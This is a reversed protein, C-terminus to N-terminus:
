LVRPVANNGTRLARPGRWRILGTKPRHSPNVAPARGDMERRFVPPIVSILEFNIAAPKMVATTTSQCHCRRRMAATAAQAQAKSRSADHLRQRDRRERKDPRVRNFFDFPLFVPTEGWLPEFQHLRTDLAGAGAHLRRGIRAEDIAPKLPSGRAGIGSSTSPLEPAAPSHRNHLSPLQRVSDSIKPCGIPTFTVVILTHSGYGPHLSACDPAPKANTGPNQLPEMRAVLRSLSM